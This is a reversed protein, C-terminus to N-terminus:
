RVNWTGDNSIYGIHIHDEHRELQDEDLIWGEEGSRELAEAWSEPGIIQDPREQPPVRSIIEGIDLVDPDTGNGRVPAGNVRRVDVARGYYHSNPLGAANGYSNPILPGDPVGPLFYHGEKFADVCVRHEETIAQLTTVLREDVIGSKLDGIAKPSAEFNRTELLEKAEGSVGEGAGESGPTCPGLALRGSEWLVLLFVLGCLMTVAALLLILRRFIKKLRYV